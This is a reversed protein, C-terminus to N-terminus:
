AHAERERMRTRAGADCLYLSFRQDHCFSVRRGPARIIQHLVQFTAASQVKSIHQMIYSGLQSVCEECNYIALHSVIIQVTASKFTIKRRSSSFHIQLGTTNKSHATFQLNVLFILCSMVARMPIEINHHMLLPM